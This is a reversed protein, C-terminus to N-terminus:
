QSAEPLKNLIGAIEQPVPLSNMEYFDKVRQLAVQSQPSRQLEANRHIALVYSPLSAEIRKVVEGQRSARLETGLSAQEIVSMAYHKAFQRQNIEGMILFMAFAGVLLGGIFILLMRVKNKM